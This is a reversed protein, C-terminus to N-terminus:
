KIFNKIRNKYSLNTMKNIDYDLWQRDINKSNEGFPVHYGSFIKIFKGDFEYTYKYLGCYQALDLFIDNLEPNDSKLVKQIFGINDMSECYGNYVNDIIIDSM